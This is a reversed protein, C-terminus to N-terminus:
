WRSYHLKIFFIFSYYTDNM